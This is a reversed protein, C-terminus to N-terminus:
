GHIKTLLVGHTDGIHAVLEEFSLTAHVLQGDRVAVWQGRYDQWHAKLWANNAKISARSASSAPVVCATPPALVHACKHLEEHTPYREAGDLALQRALGFEGTSLAHAIARVYADASQPPRDPHTEDLPPQAGRHADQERLRQLAECVLEKASQYKGSALADRVFQAVDAPLGNLYM